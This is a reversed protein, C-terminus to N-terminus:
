IEKREKKMNDCGQKNTNHPPTCLQIWNLFNRYVLVRASSAIAKAWCYWRWQWPLARSSCGLRTCEDPSRSLSLFVFQFSIVLRGVTLSILPSESRKPFLWDLILASRRLSETQDDRNRLTFNLKLRMESTQGIELSLFELDLEFLSVITFILM